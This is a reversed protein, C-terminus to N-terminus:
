GPRDLQVRDEPPIAKDKLTPEKGAGYTMPMGRRQTFRLFAETRKEQYEGFERDMRTPARMDNVEGM